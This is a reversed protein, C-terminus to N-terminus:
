KERKKKREAKRSCRGKTIDSQILADFQLRAFRDAKRNEHANTTSQSKSKM